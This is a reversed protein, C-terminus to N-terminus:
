SDYKTGNKVKAIRANMPAASINVTFFGSSLSVGATWATPLSRTHFDQSAFKGVWECLEPILEGRLQRDGLAIDLVTETRHEAVLASIRRRRVLWSPHRQRVVVESMVDRMFERM